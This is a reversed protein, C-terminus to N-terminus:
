PIIYVCLNKPRKGRNKALPVLPVLFRDLGPNNIKDQGATIWLKIRRVLTHVGYYLHRHKCYPATDPPLATRSASLHTNTSVTSDALCRRYNCVEGPVLQLLLILFFVQSALTVRVVSCSMLSNSFRARQSGLFSNFVTCVEKKRRHTHTCGNM